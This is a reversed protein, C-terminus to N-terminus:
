DGLLRGMTEVVELLLVEAENLRGQTRHSIALIGICRAIIATDEGHMKESIAVLQAQLRGATDSLKDRSTVDALFMMSRFALWSERGNLRVLENFSLTAMTRADDELGREWANHGCEFLLCAWTKSRDQRRPKLSQAVKVHPYLAACVPWNKLDRDKPSAEYLIHIFRENWSDEESRAQLWKRTVFQVLNHMTFTDLATATILSYSRLKKIDLRFDEATITLTPGDASGWGSTERQRLLIEPISQRDCFSMLSLLDAASPRVKRIQNFSIQWTSIISNTAERDRRLDGDDLNLLSSKASDSEVLMKLYQQVSCRPWEENIYGAAQNIALPMFDLATALELAEELTHECDLKKELLEVAHEAGM